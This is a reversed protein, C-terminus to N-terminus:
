QRHKPCLVANMYAQPDISHRPKKAEESEVHNDEFGDKTTATSSDPTTNTAM